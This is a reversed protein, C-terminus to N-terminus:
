KESLLHEKLSVLISELADPTHAFDIWINKNKVKQLRGPPATLQSIKPIIQDQNFGLSEIAKYAALVNSLNFKGILNLEFVYNKFNLLFGNETNQIKLNVWPITLYKKQSVRKALKKSIITEISLWM